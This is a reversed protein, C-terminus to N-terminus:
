PNHLSSASQVICSWLAAFFKNFLILRLDRVSDSCFLLFLM